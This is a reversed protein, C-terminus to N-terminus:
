LLKQMRHFANILGNTSGDFGDPASQSELADLVKNGLKKGLEVGWQDFSNVDWLMGQAAVKHEYLAILAGVVQPTSKPFYLTNSPRNGPIVKHPALVMAEAKSMGSAVLEEIAEDESKGQLLAQSQSLCNSVLMAHFNDIPNHSNMPMIFDCPSFHTGQHLLQHFAHQGNTGVGGWIVPGTNYNVKSGDITVSKGNSEMDLQQLHAPLSRLYHDYPLIAHSNVGFFNVYWVGLLAMIVPMNHELPATRFHEDMLYAGRLLDRFNDIGIALALPLGIASWLSYRGGVWDWMPFINEESIGFATAKEVNSSVATFHKCLDGETGGNDLFWQRCANANKLTEQTGFSKSQIIFLTTAPDLRKLIETIHSGDINALYHINLRSDWYPKLASSALKPGLFSGGIGISVVDTFPKNTYGRWQNRRIKWCFEEMRHVTERIEPMINEGDVMIDRDGFNRLATHLAPRNESRNITEGNFMAGIKAPLDQERALSLLLSMTDETIRNKSYDLTLGAAELQFTDFRNPDENFWDRMHHDSIRSYHEQLDKWAASQTLSGTYGM